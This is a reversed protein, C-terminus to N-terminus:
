LDNCVLCLSTPFRSALPGRELWTFEVSVVLQGGLPKVPMLEVVM